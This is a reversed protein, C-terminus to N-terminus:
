RQGVKATRSLGAPAPRGLIRYRRQMSRGSLRVRKLASEVTAGTALCYEFDEVDAEARGVSVAQNPAM